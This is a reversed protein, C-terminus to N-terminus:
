RLRDRLQQHTLQDRQLVQLIRQCQHLRQRRRLTPSEAELVAIGSDVSSNLQQQQIPDPHPSSEQSNSTNCGVPSTEAPVEGAM